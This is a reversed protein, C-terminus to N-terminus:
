KSRKKMYVIGPNFHKHRWLEYYSGDGDILYGTNVDEGLGEFSAAPPIFKRRNPFNRPDFPVFGMMYLPRGNEDVGYGGSVSNLDGESLLGCKEWEKAANKLLKKFEKSKLYKNLKSM